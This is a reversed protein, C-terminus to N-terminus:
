SRHCLIASRASLEAESKYRNNPRWLNIWIVRHFRLKSRNHMKRIATWRGYQCQRCKFTKQPLMLWAKRMFVWRISSSSCDRLKRNAKTPFRLISHSSIRSAQSCIRSKNFPKSARTSHLYHSKTLPLGAQLMPPRWLTLWIWSDGIQSAGQSFRGQNQWSLHRPRYCLTRRLHSHYHPRITGSSSATKSVRIWCHVIHRSTNSPQSSMRKRSRLHPMRRSSQSNKKRNKLQSLLRVKHEKRNQCGTWVLILKKLWM